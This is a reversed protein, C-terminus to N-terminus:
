TRSPAQESSAGDGARAVCAYHAASWLLLAPVLLLAWSLSRGPAESAWADSAVGILLPGLGAGVLNIVALFLAASFARARPDVRDQLMALTAGIYAGTGAAPLALAALAFRADRTLLAPLWLVAVVAMGLATLRPKRAPRHLSAADLARGFAITAIAGGIGIVLALFAGARALELGHDRVLWAPLWTAMGQAAATALTAAALLHRLAPSAWMGRAASAAPVPAHAAAPAVAARPDRLLMAIAVVVLIGLAGIVLYAARWGFAQSLAAGGGFALVIGLYPGTSYTAMAAARRHMPYLDAILAHSPPNTGGEGLGVVLRMAVLQWFASVAGCLATALTFTALALTIVRARDVRDAFRAVVLGAVSFLVTFAFGSLLGLATDSVGFEAKIPPILVALIQRDVYHVTFVLTLLLLTVRRRPYDAFPAEGGHRPTVPSSARYPHRM